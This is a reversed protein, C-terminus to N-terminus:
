WRIIVVLFEKSGDARSIHSFIDFILFASSTCFQRVQLKVISCSLCFISVTILWSIWVFRAIDSETLARNISRAAMAFPIVALAFAEIELNDPSMCFLDHGLVSSLWVLVGFSSTKGSSVVAFSIHWLNEGSCPSCSSSHNFKILAEPCSTAVSSASIRPLSPSHIGLGVLSFM